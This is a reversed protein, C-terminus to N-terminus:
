PLESKMVVKVVEDIFAGYFLGFLVDSFWHVHLLLRTAGIVVPFTWIIAKYKPFVDSLYNALMSAKATHGSPFAFAGIGSGYTIPRPTHYALKLLGVTILVLAFSLYPRLFEQANGKNKHYRIALVATIIILVVHTDALTTVAKVVDGGQPLLSNIAENIGNFFGLAQLLAIAFSLSGLTILKWRM